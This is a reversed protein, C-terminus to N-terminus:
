QPQDKGEEAQGADMQRGPVQREPGTTSQQKFAGSGPGIMIPSEGDTHQKDPITQAFAPVVALTLALALVFQGIPTTVINMIDRRSELNAGSLPVARAESDSM